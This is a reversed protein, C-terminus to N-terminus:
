VNHVYVPNFPNSDVASSPQKNTQKKLNSYHVPALSSKVEFKLLSSDEKSCVLYRGPSCIIDCLHFRPNKMQSFVSWGEKITFNCVVLM